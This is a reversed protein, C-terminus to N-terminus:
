ARVRRQGTDGVWIFLCPLTTGLGAAGLIIMTMAM